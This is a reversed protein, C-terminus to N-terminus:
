PPEIKMVRVLPTERRNPQRRRGEIIKIGLAEALEAKRLKYYGRLKQQKALARLDPLTYYNELHLSSHTEARDLPKAVVLALRSSESSIQLASNPKPRRTYTRTTYQNWSNSILQNRHRRPNPFGPPFDLEKIFIQKANPKESSEVYPVIELSMANSEESSEEYPVTALSMANAEESSEVYPVTALSMSEDYTQSKIINLPQKRKRKGHTELSPSTRISNCIPTRNQPVDKKVIIPVKTQFKSVKRDTKKTSGWCFSRPSYKPVHSVHPYFTKEEEVKVITLSIAQKQVPIIIGTQKKQNDAPVQCSSSPATGANDAFQLDKKQLYRCFLSKLIDYISEAPERSTSLFDEDDDKLKRISSELFDIKARLCMSVMDSYVQDTCALQSLLDMLEEEHEVIDTDAKDILIELVQICCKLNVDTEEIVDYPLCFSMTDETAQYYPPDWLGDM